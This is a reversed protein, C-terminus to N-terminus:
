VHCIAQMPTVMLIAMRYMLSTFSILETKREKVKAVDKSDNPSLPESNPTYDLLYQVNDWFLLPSIGNNHEGSPVYFDTGKNGNRCAEISHFTGDNEIVILFSINAVKWGPPISNNDKQYYDYLARLIM